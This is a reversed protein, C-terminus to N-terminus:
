TPRPPLSWRRLPKLVPVRSALTLWIRPAWVMLPPNSPRRIRVFTHSAREDALKLKLWDNVCPGFGVAALAVAPLENAESSNPAPEPPLRYWAHFFTAACLM